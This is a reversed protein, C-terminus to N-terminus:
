MRLLAHVRVCEVLGLLRSTYVKQFQLTLDQELAPTFKVKLCGRQPDKPMPGRTVNLPVLCRICSRQFRPSTKNVSSYAFGLRLTKVEVRSESTNEIFPVFKMKLLVFYNVSTYQVTMGTMKELEQLANPVVPESNKDILQLLNATMQEQPLALDFISVRLYAVDTPPQKTDRPAAEKTRKISKLAESM